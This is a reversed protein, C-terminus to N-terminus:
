QQGLMFDSQAQFASDNRDYVKAGDVFV